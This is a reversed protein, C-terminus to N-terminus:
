HQSDFSRRSALRECWNCDSGLGILRHKGDFGARIVARWLHFKRIFKKKMKEEVIVKDFKYINFLIGNVEEVVTIVVCQLQTFTQVTTCDRNITSM